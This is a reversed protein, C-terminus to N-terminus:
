KFLFTLISLVVGILAAIAVPWFWKKQWKSLTLDIQLKENEMLFQKGSLTCFLFIDDIKPADGAAEMFRKPNKWTEHAGNTSISDIINAGRTEKILKDNRLEKLAEIITGLDDTQKYTKISSLFENASKQETTHGFGNISTLIKLRIDTNM